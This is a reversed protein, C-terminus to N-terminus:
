DGTEAGPLRSPFSPFSSSSSSSWGNGEARRRVRRSVNGRIRDRESSPGGGAGEGASPGSSPYRHDDSRGSAAPPGVLLKLNAAKVKVFDSAGGGDDLLRCRFRPAGDSGAARGQVEVRRGNLDARSRLGVLEATDGTEIGVGPGPEGMSGM